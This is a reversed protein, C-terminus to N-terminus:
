DINSEFEGSAAYRLVFLCGDYGICVYLVCMNSGLINLETVNAAQWIFYLICSVVDFLEQAHMYM